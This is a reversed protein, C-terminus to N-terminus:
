LGPLKNYSACNKYKERLTMSIVQLAMLLFFQLELVVEVSGSVATRHGTLLTFPGRGPMLRLFKAEAELKQKMIEQALSEAFSAEM